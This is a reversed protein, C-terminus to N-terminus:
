RAGQSMGRDVDRGIGLDLRVYMRVVPAFGVDVIGIPHRDLEKMSNLWARVGIKLETTKEGLPSSKVPDSVGVTGEFVEGAFAM